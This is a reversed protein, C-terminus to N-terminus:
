VVLTIHHQHPRVPTTFTLIDITGYILPLELRTTTVPLTCHSISIALLIFACPMFPKAITTSDIIVIITLTELPIEHFILYPAEPNHIINITISICTQPLISLTMPCSNIDPTIVARVIIPFPTAVMLLALPTHEPDITGTIITVPHIIHAMSLTGERIGIAILIDSLPTVIHLM